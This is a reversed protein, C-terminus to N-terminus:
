SAHEYSGDPFARFMVEDNACVENHPIPSWALRDYDDYGIVVVYQVGYAVACEIAEQKALDLAKNVPINIMKDELPVRYDLPTTDSAM